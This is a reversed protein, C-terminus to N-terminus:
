NGYSELKSEGTGVDALEVSVMNYLEEETEVSVM